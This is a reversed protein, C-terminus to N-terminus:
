SWGVDTLNYSPLTTKKTEVKLNRKGGEKKKRREGRREKERRKKVM